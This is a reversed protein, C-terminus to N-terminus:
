LTITHVGDMTIPRCTFYLVQTQQSLRVLLELAQQFRAEDSYVLPDDLLLPLQYGGSVVESLGLRCAFFLQDLTGASWLPLNEDLPLEAGRERHYVHIELGSGISVQDYHGQTLCPLYTEIRPELMPSIDQLYRKNATELLDRTLDLVQIQHATSQRIAQKQQIQLALEEPDTQPILIELRGELRLSEERLRTLEAKDSELKMERKAWQEPPIHMLKQAITDRELETELAVLEVSMACYQDNVAEYRDVQALTDLKTQATRLRTRLEEVERWERELQSYASAIADPLAHHTGNRSTRFSDEPLVGAQTLTRALEQESASMERQRQEMQERLLQAKANLEALARPRWLLGIAIPVASLGLMWLGLSHGQVTLWVGMLLLAGGLILLGKRAKSQGAVQQMSSQVSELRQGLEETNRRAHQVQEYLTRAREVIETPIQAMRHRNLARELEEKEAQLTGYQHLWDHARQVQERLQDVRQKKTYFANWRELLAQENALSKELEAIREQNHRLQVSHAQYEQTQQKAQAYANQLATLQEELTQLETNLKKRRDQIAKLIPQLDTALASERLQQQLTALTKGEALRALERQRVCATALYVERSFRWRKQWQERASSGEYVKNGVKLHFEARRTPSDRTHRKIVQVPTDSVLLDLEIRWGEPHHFHIRERVEKATSNPNAYLADLLASLLTSKGSENAGTILNLGKHLQFETPQLFRGYGEVLLRVFQVKM